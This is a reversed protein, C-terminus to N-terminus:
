YSVVRSAKDVDDFRKMVEDIFTEVFSSFERNDADMMGKQRHSCLISGNSYTLNTANVVASSRM